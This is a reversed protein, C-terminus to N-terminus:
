KMVNRKDSEQVSFLVGIGLFCGNVSQYQDTFEISNRTTELIKLSKWLFTTQPCADSSIDHHIIIKSYERVLMHDQMAGFCSHDGDIFSIDPKKRSILDAFDNSTSFGQFYIIEIGEKELIESYREVFPTKAILDVAIAYKFDPNVRRLVECIVIFTGGWRCGVELYSECNKANKMLWIIYKAFQKPYQWIYLGKGYYSVLEVPQESLNENNLGVKEIIFKEMYSEDVILDDPIARFEEVFNDVNSISKSFMKRRKREKILEIFVSETKVAKRIISSLKM